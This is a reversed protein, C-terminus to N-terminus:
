SSRGAAQPLQPNLHQISVPDKAVHFHLIEAANSGTFPPKGWALEYLVCGLSYLDSRADKVRNLKGTGEPPIYPLIQKQVRTPYDQVPFTTGFDLCADM